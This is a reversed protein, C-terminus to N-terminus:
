FIDKLSFENDDFSTECSTVESYRKLVKQVDIKDQQINQAFVLNQISLCFMLMIIRKM